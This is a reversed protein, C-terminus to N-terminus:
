ESQWGPWDRLKEMKHPHSLNIFSKGRKLCYWSAWEDVIWILLCIASESATRMGDAQAASSQFCTLLEAPALGDWQLVRRGSCPPLVPSNWEPAGDSRRFFTGLRMRKPMFSAVSLFSTRPSFASGMSSLVESHEWALALSGSRWNRGLRTEQPSVHPVSVCHPHQCGWPGRKAEEGSFTLVQTMFTDTFPM